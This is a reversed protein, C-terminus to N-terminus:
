VEEIKLGAELLQQKHFESVEDWEISGCMLMAYIGICDLSVSDNEIIDNKLITFKSHPDKISRVTSM